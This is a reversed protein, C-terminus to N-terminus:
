NHIACCRISRSSPMSSATSDWRDGPGLYKPTSRFVALGRGDFERGVVLFKTIGYEPSYVRVFAGLLQVFAAAGVLVFVGIGPRAFAQKFM